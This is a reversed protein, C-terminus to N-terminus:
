IFKIVQAYNQNLNQEQATGQIPPRLNRKM